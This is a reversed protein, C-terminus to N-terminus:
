KGGRYVWLPKPSGHSSAAPAAHGTKTIIQERAARQTVGGWAREDTPSAITMRQRLMEITFPTSRGFECAFLVAARCLAHYAEESWDPEVRDAHDVAQQMGLQGHATVWTLQESM